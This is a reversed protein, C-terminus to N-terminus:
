TSWRRHGHQLSGIFGSPNNPGNPGAISNSFLARNGVATNNFGITNNFLAFAGHATNASGTTNILLAGAGFATNEEATNLLLTGAGIATNFSGEANSCLSYWGVATNAHAPPSISFPVQGEATTAMRSLRRGAGSCRAQARQFHLAPSCSRSSFSVVGSFRGRISNKLHLTAM